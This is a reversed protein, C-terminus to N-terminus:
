AAVFRDIEYSTFVEQLVDAFEQGTACSASAKMAEIEVGEEFKRGQKRLLKLAADVVKKRDDEAISM